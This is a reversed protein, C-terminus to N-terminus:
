IGFRKDVTGDDYTVTAFGTTKSFIKKFKRAVRTLKKM